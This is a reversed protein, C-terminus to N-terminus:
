LISQKRNCDNPILHLMGQYLESRLQKQHRSLYYLRSEEVKIWCDIMYQHTILGQHFITDYEIPGYGDRIHLRNAYYNQESIKRGDQTMNYTWGMDGYPFLLTYSMPDYLPSNSRLIQLHGGHSELVIERRSNYYEIDINIDPDVIIASLERVTPLLYLQPNEGAPAQEGLVIRYRPINNYTQLQSIHQKLNLIMPNIATISQRILSLLARDEASNNYPNENEGEIFYAQLCLPPAGAGANVPGIVHKIIGQVSLTPM